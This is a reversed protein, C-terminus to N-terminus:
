YASELGSLTMEAFTKGIEEASESHGPRFWRHTWNLMGLIGYAVTEASGVRRFSGDSYGQEIIYIVHQEINKNIKRMHQSWKSRKEDVNALNERVYIFLMPYHNAYGIMFASLLERMKRPPSIPSRAIREALEEHGELVSRVIEDFLEDKSSFYYYLSARDMGMEAAVASLSAGKLGLRNFIRIATQTIEQRRSQYLARGEKNAAFRRKGIVTKEDSVWADESNMLRPLNM